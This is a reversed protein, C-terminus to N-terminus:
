QNAARGGPVLGGRHQNFQALLQANLVHMYIIFVADMFGPAILGDDRVIEAPGRLLAVPLRLRQGVLGSLGFDGVVANLDAEIEGGEPVLDLFAAGAPFSTHYLLRQIIRSLLPQLRVESSLTLALDYLVALIRERNM